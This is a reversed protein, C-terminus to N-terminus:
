DAVHRISYVDAAVCELLGTLFLDLSVSSIASSPLAQLYLCLFGRHLFFVRACSPAVKSARYARYAKISSSEAHCSQQM